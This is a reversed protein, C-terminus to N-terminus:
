KKARMKVIQKVSDIVSTELDIYKFDFIKETKSFDYTNFNMSNDLPENSPKPLVYRLSEFNTYIINGISQQSFPEKSLVLRKEFANKDEFAVLHAKAVDRVDIFNSFFQPSLQATPGSYLIVNIIESSSRLKRDESANVSEDFAQPGLVMAPNVTTMVYKISKNAKNEKYFKWAYEEVYTKSATYGLMGNMLAEEKSIDNWSEETITLPKRGLINYVAAISSTLVFKEVSNGAYTKISNLIGRIGALAPDLLEKQVDEVNFTVPSAAHIVIKISDKHKKFVDDFCNENELGGTVEFSFKKNNFLKSLTEGKAQTRVTGIVNYDKKLLENVIHQAIYGSSGTVLVSM